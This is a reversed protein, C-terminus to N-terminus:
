PWSAAPSIMTGGTYRAWQWYAHPAMPDGELPLLIISVEVYRQIGAADVSKEFLMLRCEGSIQKKARFASRCARQGRLGPVDGVGQTPLGDTIVYLHTLDPMAGAIEQLAAHLNTGGDPVLGDLAASLQQLNDINSAKLNAGPGLVGAKENFGIMTVEAREPVRALIWKAVRKTRQWKPGAKKEDISAVKRRIVEVLKEETMSASHDVLIGIRRGEVRLGILYTEEGTGSLELPDDSKEPPAAGRVAQELEAINTQRRALAQATEEAQKEFQEIQAKLRQMESRQSQTQARKMAVEASMAEETDRLQELDQKLRQIEDSPTESYAHFKVLMFILLVAGLGCSMVDLFALNFAESRRRKLM